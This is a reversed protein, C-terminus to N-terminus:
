FKFWITLLYAQVSFLFNSFLELYKSSWIVRIWEPASPAVSSVLYKIDSCNGFLIFYIRFSNSSMPVLGPIRRYIVVTAFKKNEVSWTKNSLMVRSPGNWDLPFWKRIMSTFCKMKIKNSYFHALEFGGQPQWFHLQHASIVKILKIPENDLRPDYNITPVLYVGDCPHNSPPGPVGSLRDDCHEHYPHVSSSFVDISM